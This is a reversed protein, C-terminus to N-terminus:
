LEEHDLARISEPEWSSVGLNPNGLIGSPAGRPSRPAAQLDWPSGQTETPAAQLDWPAGIYTGEAQRSTGHPVETAGKPAGPSAAQGFLIKFAFLCILQLM